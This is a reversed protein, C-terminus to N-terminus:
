WRSVKGNGDKGLLVDYSIYLGPDWLFVLDKRHLLTMISAMFM